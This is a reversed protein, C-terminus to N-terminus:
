SSGELVEVLTETSTRDLQHLSETRRRAACERKYMVLKNRASPLFNARPEWTVLGDTWKAKYHMTNGQKKHDLIKIVYAMEYDEKRPRGRKRKVPPARVVTIVRENNRKGKDRLRPVVFIDSAVRTEQNAREERPQNLFSLEVNRQVKGASRFESRCSCRCCQSLGKLPPKPSWPIWRLQPTTQHENSSMSSPPPRRTSSLGADNSSLTATQQQDRQVQHQHAQHQDHQQAKLRGIVGEEAQQGVVGLAQVPQVLSRSM